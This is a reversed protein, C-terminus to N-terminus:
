CSFSLVCVVLDAMVKDGIHLPQSGWHLIGWKEKIKEPNRMDWPAGSVNSEWCMALLRYAVVVFFGEGENCWRILYYPHLKVLHTQKECGHGALQMRRCGWLKCLSALQCVVRGMSIIVLAMDVSYIQYHMKLAWLAKCFHEKTHISKFSISFFFTPHYLRSM